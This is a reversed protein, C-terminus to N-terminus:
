LEGCNTKDLDEAIEGVLEMYQKTLKTLTKKNMFMSMMVKTMIIYSLVNAVVLALVFVVVNLLM